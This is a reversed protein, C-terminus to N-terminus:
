ENLLGYLWGNGLAARFADYNTYFRSYYQQLEDSMAPVSYPWDRFLTRYYYYDVLAEAEPSQDYMDKIFAKVKEADGGVAEDLLKEIEQSQGSTYLQHYIAEWMLHSAVLIGEMTEDRGALYLTMQEGGELGNALKEYSFSLCGAYTFGPSIACSRSYLHSPLAGEFYLPEQLNKYVLRRAEDTFGDEVVLKDWFAPVYFTEVAPSLTTAPPALTTTTTPTTDPPAPQPKLPPEPPQGRGTAHHHAGIIYVAMQARPAPEYAAAEAASPAINLRQLCKAAQALEGSASLDCAGPRTNNLLRALFLTVAATNLDASPSFTTDTTGKTIGLAYICAIDARAWHGSTDSFAPAPETPCARDLSDRWMRALFAAMQARTLKGQPAFAGDGVGETLGLARACLIYGRPTTTPRWM